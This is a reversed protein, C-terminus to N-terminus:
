AIVETLVKYPMAKILRIDNLAKIEIINESPVIGRKIWNSVVNTSELGYRRTYEKITIWEGLDIQQGQSTLLAIAEQQTRKNQEILTEFKEKANM